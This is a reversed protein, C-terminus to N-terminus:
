DVKVLKQFSRVGESPLGLNNMNTWAVEGLYLDSRSDVCMGHPAIFQGL